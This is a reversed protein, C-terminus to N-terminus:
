SLASTAAAFTGRLTAQCRLFDSAHMHRRYLGVKAATARRSGPIVSPSGSPHRRRSDKIQKEEMAVWTASQVRRGPLHVESIASLKCYPTRDHKRRKIFNDESAVVAPARVSVCRLKGHHAAACYNQLAEHRVPLM